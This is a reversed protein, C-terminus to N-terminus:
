TDIRVHLTECSTLMKMCDLSKCLTNAHVHIVLRIVYRLHCILSLYALLPLVIVHVFNPVVDTGSGTPVRVKSFSVIGCLVRGKDHVQVGPLGSLKTRLEAALFQVREWIWDLGLENAYRVAIGLGVQM